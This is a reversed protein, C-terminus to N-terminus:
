FVIVVLCDLNLLWLYYFEVCFIKFNVDNYNLVQNNMKIIMYILVLVYLDFNVMYM